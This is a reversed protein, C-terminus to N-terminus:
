STYAYKQLLLAFLQAETESTVLKYRNNYLYNLLVTVHRHSLKSESTKNNRTHVNTISWCGTEPSFQEGQKIKHFYSILFLDICVQSKTFPYSLEIMLTDLFPM